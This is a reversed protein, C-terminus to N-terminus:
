TAPSSATEAGKDVSRDLVTFYLGLHCSVLFFFDPRHPPYDLCYFRISHGPHLLYVSTKMVGNHTFSKTQTKVISSKMDEHPIDKLFFISFCSFELILHNCGHKRPNEKISPGVGEIRELSVDLTSLVLGDSLHHCSFKPSLFCDPLSCSDQQHSTQYGVTDVEDYVFIGPIKHLSSDVLDLWLSQTLNILFLSNLTSSLLFTNYITALSM